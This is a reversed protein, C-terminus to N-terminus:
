VIAPLSLVGGWLEGRAVSVEEGEERKEGQEMGYSSIM